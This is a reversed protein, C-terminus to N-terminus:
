NDNKNELYKLAYIFVIPYKGRSVYNSITQECIDLEHALSKQNYDNAILWLRFQKKDM